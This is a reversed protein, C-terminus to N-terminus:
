EFLTFYVVFEASNIVVDVYPKDNDNTDVAAIGDVTQMGFIVYGFAAYLGDLHPYTQHMIFFQSSASDHGNDILQGNSDYREGARAMSVVGREHSITNNVGNALFEGKITEGSGGYGTGQPDGGQIVFNEIVRHFTLGDYFGQAVLKQFNEVTIPANKKDLEIVIDGNYQQGNSATYSVNLKVFDTVKSSVYFINNPALNYIVNPDQEPTTEEPTTGEPTTTDSTAANPTTLTPAHTTTDGTESPEPGKSYDCSAIALVCVLTLAICLLRKM